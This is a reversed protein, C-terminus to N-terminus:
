DSFCCSLDNKFKMSPSKIFEDLSLEKPKPLKDGIEIFNQNNPVFERKKEGKQAFSLHEDTIYVPIGM